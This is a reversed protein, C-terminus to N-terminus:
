ADRLQGGPGDGRRCAATHSAGPVGARPYLSPGHLSCKRRTVRHQLGDISKWGEEYRASADSGEGGTGDRQAYAVGADVV